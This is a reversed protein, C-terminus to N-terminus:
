LCQSKYISEIMLHSLPNLTDFKPDSCLQNMKWQTNSLAKPGLKM